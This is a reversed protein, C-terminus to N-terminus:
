QPTEESKKKSGAAFILILGIVILGIKIIWAVNDGWNYIWFLLRPVRDMYNTIIAIVGIITLFSGLSRM